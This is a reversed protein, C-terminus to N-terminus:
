SNEAVKLPKTKIFQQLLLAVGMLSLCGIPNLWLFPLEIKGFEDLYYLVIIFPQVILISFMVARGKVKPLMFAIAFVGLIVGYFLSGIINVAEVLSDFLSANLAFILAIAGWMATFWRSAKLYNKGDLNPRFNRKYVDVVTTTALANIESATSSMAASLIVALLLGVLGRPFYNLIYHIFVYDKDNSEYKYKNAKKETDLYQTLEEKLERQAEQNEVLSSQLTKIGEGKKNEILKWTELIDQKEQFLQDQQQEFGKYTEDDAYLERVEPNFHIPAQNYQFFVFVMVGTLLIFFQMPVKFLGNFLLGLKAQKLDKGSLYRQVQSQDTGFYSLFLFTGGLFASWINYREKLDFKFDVAELKNMQGSLHLAEGFNVPLQNLITWFAIFMGIFIVFMQQKQTQNVAQTGGLLTYLTVLVGIVLVTWNLNWGLITSLVIAPAFITLGAALGRQLLFLLATLLRTPLGFRGELYEYATKVNLKFFKPLFFLCLIVIALPMALYFQLFRMGSQYAVGPTSLFTIASAQTAMVSLGVMWWPSQKGGTLFGEASNIKRTKWIGYFVIFCLVSILVLWDIQKM